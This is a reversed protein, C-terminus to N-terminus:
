KTCDESPLSISAKPYGGVLHTNRLSWSGVSKPVKFAKIRGFKNQKYIVGLLSFGTEHMTVNAEM